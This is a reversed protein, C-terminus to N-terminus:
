TVAAAVDIKDTGAGLRSIVRCRPLREIVEAPVQSSVVLLADCDAAAAIIEDPSQGEIERLKADAQELARKEAAEIVAESTGMGRCEAIFRAAAPDRKAVIAAMATPMTDTNMTTPPTTIMFMM